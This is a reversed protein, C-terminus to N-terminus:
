RAGCGSTAGVPGGAKGNGRARRKGLACVPGRLRMRPRPFSAQSMEPGMEAVMTWATIRDIGPISTWTEVAAAFPRM